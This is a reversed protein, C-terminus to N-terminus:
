SSPYAPVPAAGFVSRYRLLWLGSALVAAVISAALPADLETRPLLALLAAALLVLRAVELRYSWAKAELLAGCCLLTGAIFGALAVLTSAAAGEDGLKLIQVTAFIVPVFQVLVYLNLGLPVRPDYKVFTQTGPEPLDICGDEPRWGPPKLWLLLKKGPGETRRTQRVLALWYQVNAWLPNWSKLPKVIGYHPEEEEVQFSGFLRDWVILTGGYNKDLYKLDSGHHVRHHSPTNLVWELPGLKGIARTHIWFQYLTNFSAVALFMLPPFGILALPLYFAWSFWKQFADQRLATTLNFEESQHHVIHAGWVLAVEHSVRHFWYYCFDV